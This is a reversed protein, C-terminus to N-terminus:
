LDDISVGSNTQYGINLRVGNPVYFAPTNRRTQRTKKDGIVFAPMIWNSNHFVNKLYHAMFTDIWPRLLRCREPKPILNFFHSYTETTKYFEFLETWLNPPVRSIKIFDNFNEPKTAKDHLLIKVRERYKAHTELNQQRGGFYKEYWTLGNYAISLNYLSMPKLNSGRKLNKAHILEEETACEISSMDDYEIETVTPYKQRLYAILTQIMVRSGDGKSLFIRNINQENTVCEEDYMAHSMNASSPKNDFYRIFISVCDPYDGGIQLTTYMVDEERAITKEKIIFTYKGSKVKVSTERLSM